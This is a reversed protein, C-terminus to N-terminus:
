LFVASFKVRGSLFPQRSRHACGALLVRPSRVSFNIRWFPSKKSVCRPFSRGGWGFCSFFQRNAPAPLERRFKRSGVPVALGCPIKRSLLTSDACISFAFGQWGFLVIFIRRETEIIKARSAVLFQDVRYHSRHNVHGEVGASSSIDGGNGFVVSPVKRYM